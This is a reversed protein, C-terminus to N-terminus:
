ENDKVVKKTLVISSEGPLWRSYEVENLIIHNEQPRFTIKYEPEPRLYWQPNDNDFFYLCQFEVGAGLNIAPVKNELALYIVEWRKRNWSLYDHTAAISFFLFIGVLTTSALYMERKHVTLSSFLFVGMLPIVMILYRDYYGTIMFPGMYCVNLIIIFSENFLLRKHVQTVWNKFTVIIVGGSFFGVFTLLGRLVVPSKGGYPVDRFNGAFDEMTNPGVGFDIFVNDISPILKNMLAFSLTMLLSYAMIFLRDKRGIFSWRLFFLLPSLFLGVYATFLLIYGVTNRLLRLDPNLVLEKLYGLKSGYTNPLLGLGDMIFNFLLYAIIASVLPVIARILSVRHAKPIFFQAFFWSFPIVIALQRSLMAWICLVTALFLSITAMEKNYKIFFYISWIVITMFPVDTMYSFSLSLFIPNALVLFSLIFSVRGNLGCINGLRYVGLIGIFSIILTSIRLTTYSFGFIKTIVLGHVVHSFLTMEGWNILRFQGDKLWHEVVKGYAWDDNLPFDGLPNVLLIASIWLM